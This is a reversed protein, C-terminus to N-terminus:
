KAEAAKTVKEVKERSEAGRAAGEAKLKGEATRSVVAAEAARRPGAAQAAEEAKKHQDATRAAKAADAARKRRAAVDAEEASQEEEAVRAAETCEELLPRTHKSARLLSYSLGRTVLGSAARKAEM